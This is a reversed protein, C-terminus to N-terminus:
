KKNQKKSYIQVYMQAGLIEVNNLAPKHTLKLKMQFHDCLDSVGISLDDELAKLSEQVNQVTVGEVSIVNGQIEIGEKVRSKKHTKNKIKKNEKKNYFSFACACVFVFLCM